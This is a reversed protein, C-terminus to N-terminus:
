NQIKYYAANVTDSENGLAPEGCKLVYEKCGNPVEYYCYYDNNGNDIVYTRQSYRIGRFKLSEGDMGCLKINMYGDGSCNEMNVTYHALHWTCGESAAFYEGVANGRAFSDKITRVAEQGTIIGDLKIIANEYASGTYISAYGMKGVPLMDYIDSYYVKDDDDRITNKQNDLVITGFKMFEHENEEIIEIEADTVSHDPEESTMPIDESNEILESESPELVKLETSIESDTSIVEKSNETEDEQIEIVIPSESVTETDATDNCTEETFEISSTESTIIQTTMEAEDTSEYEGGIAIAPEATQEVTQVTNKMFSAAMYELLKQEDKKLDSFKNGASGVFFTWETEGDSISSLKGTFDNYIESTLSVQATVTATLKYIGKSENEDFDLKNKRENTFWVGLVDSDKLAALKDSKDRFGFTTGKEAICIVADMNFLFYESDGDKYLYTQNREFDMDESINTIATANRAVSSIIDFKVGDVSTITSYGDKGSQYMTNGCGSLIAMLLLVTMFLTKNKKIIM